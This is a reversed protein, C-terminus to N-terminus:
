PKESEKVKKKLKNNRNKENSLLWRLLWKLVGVLLYKEIIGM